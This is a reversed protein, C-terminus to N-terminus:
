HERFYPYSIRRIRGPNAQSCPTALISTSCESLTVAMQKGTLLGRLNEWCWGKQIGKQRGRADATPAVLQEGKRYATRIVWM